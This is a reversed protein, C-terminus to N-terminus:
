LTELVAEFSLVPEFLLDGVSQPDCWRLCRCIDYPLNGIRDPIGEAELRAVICVPVPVNRMPQLFPPADHDVALVMPAIIWLVFPDIGAPHGCLALPKLYLKMRYLAIVGFLVNSM